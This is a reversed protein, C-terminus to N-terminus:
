RRESHRSGERRNLGTLASLGFSVVSIVLAALIASWFSEVVVGLGLAQAIRSAVMLMAGNIVLTFLGLTILILPCSLVKLVPAIVANVLGLILALWLYLTWGGQAHLGEVLAVAVYIAVANIAWRLLLRRIVAVGMGGGLRGNSAL